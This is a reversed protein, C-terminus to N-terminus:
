KKAAPTAPELGRLGGPLSYDMSSARMAEAVQEAAEQLDYIKDNIFRYQNNQLNSLINQFILLKKNVDETAVSSLEVWYLQNFRNLTEQYKESVYDKHTALYGITSMAEAYIKNQNEKFKALIERNLQNNMKDIEMQRMNLERTKNEKQGENFQYVGVMVTALTLIPTFLKLFTELKSQPLM